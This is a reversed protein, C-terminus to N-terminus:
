FYKLLEYVREQTMRAGELNRAMLEMSGGEYENGAEKMRKEKEKIWDRQKELLKERTQEGLKDWLVNLCDDWNKYLEASDLNLERQTLDEEQLKKEIEKGRKEWESIVNSSEGIFATKGNVNYIGYYPLTQIEQVNRFSSLWMAFDEPLESLAIGPVYIFFEDADEFGYPESYIYRVNNEYYTEGSTGETELNKLKMRYINSNIKEPETFSGRFNCIYTTGQEYGNGTDTVNSDHYQGTFSGDKNMDIYTEWAGVGSTFQFRSPMSEFINQSKEQLIENSIHERTKGEENNYFEKMDNMVILKDTNKTESLATYMAYTEAIEKKQEQAQTSDKWNEVDNNITNLYYIYAKDRLNLKLYLLASNRIKELDDIQFKYGSTYMKQVFKSMECNAIFELNVAQGLKYSIEAAEMSNNYTDSVGALLTDATQIMAISKGTFTLKAAESGLVNLTEEVAKEGVAEINNTKTQILHNAANKIRKVAAGDYMNSDFEKLIEIQSSFDETIEEAMKAIDAINCLSNLITLADGVNGLKKSILDIEDGCVANLSSGGVIKRTVSDSSDYVEMIKEINTGVNEIKKGIDVIFKTRTNEDSLESLSSRELSEQILSYPIEEMYGNIPETLEMLIEEYEEEIAENVGWVPIYYRGDFNRLMHALSSRSSRILENEGNMLLDVETNRSDHLENFYDEFFDPLSYSLRNVYLVSDEVCWTAHMFYLMKELPLYYKNNQKKITIKDTQGQIHAEGDFGIDFQLLVSGSKREFGILDDINCIYGGIEAIDEASMYIEKEVIVNYEKCEGNGTNVAIVKDNKEEALTPVFLLGVILVVCLSLSIYKKM